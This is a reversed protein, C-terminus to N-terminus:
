GGLWATAKRGNARGSWIRSRLVAMSYRYYAILWLHAHAAAAQLGVSERRTAAPRFILGLGRRTTQIRYCNVKKIIRTAGAGLWLAAAVAKNTRSCVAVDESESTIGLWPRGASARAGSRQLAQLAPKARADTPSAILM